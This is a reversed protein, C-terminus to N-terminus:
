ACRRGPPATPRMQLIREAFDTGATRKACYPDDQRYWENRKEQDVRRPKDPTLLGRAKAIAIAHRRTVPSMRLKLGHDLQALEAQLGERQQDTLECRMLVTVLLEHDNM